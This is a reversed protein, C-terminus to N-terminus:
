QSSTQMWTIVGASAASTNAQQMVNLIEGATKVCPKAVVKCPLKSSLENAIEESHSNIEAFIETGYLHQTGVVLWFEYNKISM